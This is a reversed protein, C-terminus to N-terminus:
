SCTSSAGRAGRARQGLAVDRADVGDLAMEELMM